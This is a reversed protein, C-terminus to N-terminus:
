EEIVAEKSKDEVSSSANVQDNSSVPGGLAESIKNSVFDVLLKITKLSDDNAPIPYDIGSPDTNSDIIGFVPIGLKKSGFSIAKGFIMGISIILLGLFSSPDVGNSLSTEAFFIYSNM